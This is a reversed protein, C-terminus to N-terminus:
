PHSRKAASSASLSRVEIIQAVIDGTIFNPMDVPLDTRAASIQVRSQVPFLFLVDHCEQGVESAGHESARLCQQADCCSAQQCSEDPVRDVGTTAYRYHHNGVITNLGGARCAPM